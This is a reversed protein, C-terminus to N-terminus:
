RQRITEQADPAFLFEGESGHILPHGCREMNDALEVIRCVVELM